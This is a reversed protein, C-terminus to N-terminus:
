VRVLIGVKKLHIQSELCTKGNRALFLTRGCTCTHHKMPQEDVRHNGLDRIRVWLQLCPDSTKHHMIESAVKQIDDAVQTVAGRCGM